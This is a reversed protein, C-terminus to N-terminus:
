AFVRVNGSSTSRKGNQFRLPSWPYWTMCVRSSIFFFFSFLLLLSFLRLVLLGTKQRILYCVYCLGQADLPVLAIAWSSPCRWSPELSKSVLELMHSWLWRLVMLRWVDFLCLRPAYVSLLSRRRLSFVLFFLAHWLDVHLFPPLPYLLCYGLLFSTTSSSRTSRANWHNKRM